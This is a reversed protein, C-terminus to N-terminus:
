LRLKANSSETSRELAALALMAMFYHIINGLLIADIKGEQM